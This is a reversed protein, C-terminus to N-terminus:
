VFAAMNISTIAAKIQEATYQPLQERLYKYIEHKNSVGKYEKLSLAVNNAIIDIENM